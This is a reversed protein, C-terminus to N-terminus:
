KSACNYSLLSFSTNRSQFFFHWQTAFLFIWSCWLRSIGSFSRELTGPCMFLFKWLSKIWPLLYQSVNWICMLLIISSCATTYDCLPFNCLWFFFHGLVDCVFHTFCVFSFSIAFGLLCPLVRAIEYFEFSWWFWAICEGHIHLKAFYGINLKNKASSFASLHLASLLLLQLLMQPNLDPHTSVNVCNIVTVNAKSSVHISCIDECQLIYLKMWFCSSFLWQVSRQLFQINSINETVM